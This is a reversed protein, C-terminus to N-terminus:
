RFKGVLYLILSIIISIIISTALPFYFTFHEKRIVIDGPLKGLFPAKQIVLMVLGAIILVIGLLILVRAMDGM